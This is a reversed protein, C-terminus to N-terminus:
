TSWAPLEGSLLATLAPAPMPRALLYGQGLRCGREVLLARQAETEIGEAVAEMGLADALQIITGVIAAGRGDTDLRGLFSRDIKLIDVPMQELRGLSSFGAGFDDIALRVGIEHFQALTREVRDPEQMTASETIEAVLRSPDLGYMAVCDAVTTTLRRSRMQRLSVNFSLDLALGEDAWARAQRCLAEVVWEGMPEILGSEEAVGIFEGPGVLGREPHHWRLLAEAGVPRGDDLAFIPQYHLELEENGLARRLERTLSLRGRPDDAPATYLTVAGSGKGDYMAADAHRLLADASDADEPFISIGVTGEIQFELDSITFPERLADVLKRAVARAARRPEIELDTLLVLFEDGGHRALLDGARLTGEMRRGALRLIEDGVTHGFSDNVLKFRDLDIYLLAVATGARQARALARNLHEELQARNALGTLPDHYALHRLSAEAQERDTVDRLHGTFVARGASHLRTITLEAPFERGDARQATLTIRQGVLKGGDGRAAAALGARHAARLRPPVIMEAMESGVAEDRSYGFIREAAPNFDVVHGDADITIIADLAADMIGAERAEAEKLATIEVMVGQVAKPARDPGRLLTTREWLWVPRGDRRLMRYELDLGRSEAISTEAEALVRERDDPHLREVWFMPSGLWDAPPFGLLEEVQPSIYRLAYDEGFDALYTIAPTRELLARYDCAHGDMGPSDAAVPRWQPNTPLHRSAPLKRRVTFSSHRHREVWALERRDEGAATPATARACSASHSGCAGSSHGHAVNTTFM